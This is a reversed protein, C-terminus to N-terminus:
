GQIDARMVAQIPAICFGNGLTETAPIRHGATGSTM